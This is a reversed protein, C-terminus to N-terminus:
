LNSNFRGDMHITEAVYVDCTTLASRNAAFLSGDLKTMAPHSVSKAFSLSGYHMISEIDYRGIDLGYTGLKAYQSEYGSLINETYVRVHHDRDNRQQTHMLGLAHGIEHVANGASCDTGLNIEQATGQYGVVASCTSSSAPQVFNIYGTETTREFLDIKAYQEWHAIAANIKAITASNASGDILYPVQIKGNSIPWRLSSDNWALGTNLKREGLTSLLPPHQSVNRETFVKDAWLYKDGVESLALLTWGGPVRVFKSVLSAGPSLSADRAHSDNLYIANTFTLGTAPPDFTSSLQICEPGQNAQLVILAALLEQDDEPQQFLGLATCNIGMSLSLGLVVPILTRNLRNMPNKAVPERSEM